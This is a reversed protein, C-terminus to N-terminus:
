KVGLMKVIELIKERNEWLWALLVRGRRPEDGHDSAMALVQRQAATQSSELHKELKAMLKESGEIEALTGADDPFSKRMKRLTKRLPDVLRGKFIGM